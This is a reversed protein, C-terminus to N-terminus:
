VEEDSCLQDIEADTLPIFNEESYYSSLDPAAVVGTDQGDIIWNGNEGIEPTAGDKGDKGDQGNAGDSGNAGDKGPQGREATLIFSQQEGNTLFITVLTENGTENSSTEYDIRDIGVGDAGDAGDLGDKGDKGPLGDAGNVGDKGPLGDLGNKGDKGDRGDRGNQGDQGNKGDRGDLGDMGDKIFITATRTTGDQLQWLFTVNNGGEIPEISQIQCPAGKLAGVGVLSDDVYRKSLIYSTIDMLHNGM